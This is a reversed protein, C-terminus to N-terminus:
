SHQQTADDCAEYIDYHQSLQNRSLTARVVPGGGGEGEGEDEGALLEGAVQLTGHQTYTGWLTVM